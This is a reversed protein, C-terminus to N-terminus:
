EGDCGEDDRASKERLSGRVFYSARVRRQCIRQDGSCLDLRSTHFGCFVQPLDQYKVANKAPRICVGHYV